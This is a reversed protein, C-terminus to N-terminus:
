EKERRALVVLRSSELALESGDLGGYVGEVALGAADFLAALETATYLRISQHHERRAGDPAVLTVTVELRSTLLDFRQEQLALTGDALRDVEAPMFQRVVTDRGVTELLFLGGPKLAGRVSQLVALNEDETEFYGFANFINIAADFEAAFPMHRMDGRVWRVSIRSARAAARARSLLAASLDLGTVRYGLAALPIAHRGQGCAVDLLSGGEPLGAGALLGLMGALERETREPYLYDEHLRLYDEGFFTAYWPQETM